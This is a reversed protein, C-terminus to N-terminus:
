KQGSVILSPRSEIVWRRKGAEVERILGDYKERALRLLEKAESVTISSERFKEPTNDILMQVYEQLPEVFERTIINQKDEMSYREDDLCFPTYFGSIRINALGLRDFVRPADEIRCFKGVGGEQEISDSLIRLKALLEDIQKDLPSSPQKERSKLDAVGMVSVTGGKRCVRIKERIFAETDRIHEIVTYSTVSDFREDEFPFDCADAIFYKVRASVGEEEAKRMAYEVFNRDMDVGYVFGPPKTYRALYRTFTGPGCGVDLVKSAPSLALYTFFLDKLEHRFRRSRSIDLEHASRVWKSWFTFKDMIVLYM